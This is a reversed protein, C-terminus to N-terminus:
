GGLYAAKMKPNDKLDNKTGEFIIKGTEIIYARDALDLAKYANQEVLLITTGEQNIKKIIKFVDQVLLPALGLSPEDLMLLKPHAMLGRAIALMQQEGGSLSWAKQNIREKLGPFIKFVQILDRDILEREKPDRLNRACTGVEINEQVTFYPFVRRGEPVLSIGAEVVLNADKGEIQKGLFEIRGSRPKLLGSIAKLTTSKGAGNAGLLVVIEGENVHFDIGYLAQVNGYFVELEEVKLM